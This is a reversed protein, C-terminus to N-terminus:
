VRGTIEALTGEEGSGGAVPGAAQQTAGMGRGIGGFGGQRDDRYRTCLTLSGSSFTPQWPLLPYLRQESFGSIPQSLDRRRGDQPHPASPLTESPCPSSGPQRALGPNDEGLGTLAGPGSFGWRGHPVNAESKRQRWCGPHGCIATDRPVAAAVSDVSWRQAAGALATHETCLGWFLCRCGHPPDTPM